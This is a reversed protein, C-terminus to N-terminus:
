PLPEVAREVSQADTRILIEGQIQYGPPPEAVLSPDHNIRIDGEIDIVDGGLLVGEIRATDKLRVDGTAHILGHLVSTYVDNTDNDVLGQFPTGPPNFNVGSEQESLRGDLDESDLDIILDGDVILTPMGPSAPQLLASDSITVKRGAALVLLTGLIRTESIDIDSSSARMMYIGEPNPSGFPNSNKSLVVGQLQTVGTLETARAFYIELDTLPPIREDTSPIQVDGSHTGSGSYRDAEIDAVIAGDNRIRDNSTSPADIAELLKGGHIKLENEAVISKRLAPIPTPPERDARVVLRARQTSGGAGGLADLVVDQEPDDPDWAAGGAAAVTLTGTARGIPVDTYWAGEGMTRRWDPDAAIAHTGLELMSSAATRADASAAGRWVSETLARQV